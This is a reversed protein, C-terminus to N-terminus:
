SQNIMATIYVIATFNFVTFFEPRFQRSDMDEAIGTCTEVLHARLGVPLQDYQSNTIYGHIALFSLLYIFSWINSCHLLCSPMIEKEYFILWDSRARYLWTTLNEHFLLGNEVQVTWEVAVRLVYSAIPDADKLIFSLIRSWYGASLERPAYGWSFCSFM